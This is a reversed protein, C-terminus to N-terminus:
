GGCSIDQAKVGVFGPVAEVAKFGEFDFLQAVAKIAHEPWALGSTAGFWAAGLKRHHNQFHLHVRIRPKVMAQHCLGVAKQLVM